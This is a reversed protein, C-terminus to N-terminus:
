CWKGGKITKVEIGKRNGVIMISNNSNTAVNTKLGLVVLLTKLCWDEGKNSARYVNLIRQSIRYSFFTFSGFCFKFCAGSLCKSYM